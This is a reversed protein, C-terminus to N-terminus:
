VRRDLSGTALRGNPLAALSAVEAMHGVLMLPLAREAVPQSPLNVHLLAPCRDLCSTSALM